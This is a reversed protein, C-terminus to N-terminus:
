PRPFSASPCPRSNVPNPPNALGPADNETGGSAPSPPSCLSGPPPRTSVLVVGGSEESRESGGEGKLPPITVACAGGARNNPRRPRARISSVLSPFSAGFSAPCEQYAACWRQRVAAERRMMAANRRCPAASQRWAGSAACPTLRSGAPPRIAEPRHGWAARTRAGVFARGCAGCGAGDVPTVPQRGENLTALSKYAKIGISDPLSKLM